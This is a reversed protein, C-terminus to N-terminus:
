SLHPHSPLLHLLITAEVDEHCVAFAIIRILMLGSIPGIRMSGSLRIPVASANPIADTHSTLIPPRRDGASDSYSVQRPLAPSCDGQKLGSGM